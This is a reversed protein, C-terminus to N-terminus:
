GWQYHAQYSCELESFPLMKKKKKNIGNNPMSKSGCFDNYFHPEMKWFIPKESNQIKQVSYSLDDEEIDTEDSIVYGAPSYNFSSFSLGFLNNIKGRFSVCYWHVQTILVKSV